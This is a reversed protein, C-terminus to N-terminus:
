INRGGRVKAKGNEGGQLEVILNIRDIEYRPIKKVGLSKLIRIQEEKTMLYIERETYKKETFINSSSKSSSKKGSKKRKSIKLTKKIKKVIAGKKDSSFGYAGM